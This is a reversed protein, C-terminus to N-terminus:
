HAPRAAGALRRAEARFDYPVEDACDPWKGTEVWYDCLGLKACLRPFRPDHYFAEFFRAFILSPNAAQPPAPTKWDFMYAFSARDILEFTEDRLGQQYLWPQLQLQVMGTRSLEVRQMQLFRELATPDRDVVYRASSILVQLSPDQAPSASWARTLREVTARDGRLAAFFIANTARYEDEPWRAQAADNLQSAEDVHGALALRRVLRNIAVPALPDLEYARRAFALSERLRGVIGCFEAVGALVQPDNPAAALAKAQLAERARYRAPPELNGLALYAWGMQPDLRLATQAAEASQDRTLGSGSAEARFSWLATSRLFSLAAWGRGFAPARVVVEELMTAQRNLAEFGSGHRVQARLFLDFVAPDIATPPSRAFATQLAAAVAAAIEDQLVFIDTLDRDYRDSWLTTQRECEILNVAIRVKSGSRRVSGDLVHTANLDAVVRRIAKDAGRLQFSSTRGIVKLDAGRAVTQLIEESIGDSFYAMEPDGSLNDFALVALLPADPHGPSRLPPFDQPLGDIVIQCVGVSQKPDDLPHFGLRRVPARVERESALLEAVAATVLVQGGHALSLLRACRNLAPGFYDGDRHEATGVHIAARTKLSGIPPWVESALATQVDCAALVADSPRRFSIFFADGATKFVEGGHRASVERMVQDHAAVAEQMTARHDLWLLSSGEIDTFLFARFDPPTATV